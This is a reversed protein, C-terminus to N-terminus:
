AILEVSWLYWASYYGGGNWGEIQLYDGASLNRIATQTMNIYNPTGATGTAFHNGNHTRTGNIMLSTVAAGLQLGGWTIRYWGATPATFRGNVANYHSGNNYTATFLIVGTPMGGSSYDTTPSGMFLPKNPMTVHGNANIRLDTNAGRSFFMNGSTGSTFSINGTSLANQIDMSGLGNQAILGYSTNNTVMLYGAGYVSTTGRNMSTVWNTGTNSDNRIELIYGPASTGMGVRNNTTDVFLVGSDFNVNSAQTGTLTDGFNALDRSNAM